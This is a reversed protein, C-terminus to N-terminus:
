DSRNGTVLQSFIGNEFDNFSKIKIRLNILNSTQKSITIARRIFAISRLSYLFLALSVPSTLETLVILGSAFPFPSSAVQVRIFSLHEIRIQM